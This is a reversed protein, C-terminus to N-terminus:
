RGPRHPAPRHAPRPAPQVARGRPAPRAAPARGPRPPVTEWHEFFPAEHGPKVTPFPKPEPGPEISPHQGGPVGPAALVAQQFGFALALAAGALSATFTIRSM